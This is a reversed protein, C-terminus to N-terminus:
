CGYAIGVGDPPPVSRLCGFPQVGAPTFRAASQHAYNVCFLGADGARCRYDGFSLTDGNALEPGDGNVFPGPDGRSAGVQLTTGDFAVWGGQWDGYATEPRPPPSTLRVLCLLAGGAHKADTTCSAQAAKATFAVDDGLPTAVGDRTASHYRGPDAPHGAEIWAIVDSMAAGAAPAASPPAPRSTSPATTTAPPNGSPTTRGSPGGAPHSCGVVLLPAALFVAIRM